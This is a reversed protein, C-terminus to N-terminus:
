PCDKVGVVQMTARRNEAADGPIGDIPEHSGAARISIRQAPIGAKNLVAVVAKARRYSLLLNYQDWGVSDAYGQVSLKAGPEDNLWKSIEEVRSTVDSAMVIASDFKFPVVMLAPCEKPMTPAAVPAPTEAPPAASPTAAPSDAAAPARAADATAVPPLAPAAAGAPQPEAAAM